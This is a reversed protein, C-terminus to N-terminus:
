RGAAKKYIYIGGTAPTLSPMYIGGKSRIVSRKAVGILTELSDLKEPKGMRKRREAVRRESSEFLKSISDSLSSEQKEKQKEILPSVYKEFAKECEPRVLEEGTYGPKQPLGLDTVVLDYDTKEIKELGSKVDVALEVHAKEDSAKRVYDAIEKFESKDLSDEVLLIKLKKELKQKEM